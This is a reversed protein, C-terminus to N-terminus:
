KVGYVKITGGSFTGGSPLFTLSNIASTTTYVGMSTIYYYSAGVRGYGEWSVNKALSSTYDYVYGVTQHKYNEAPSGDPIYASIIANTPFNIAQVIGGNYQLGIRTYNNATDGNFRFMAEASSSVYCGSVVWMLDTYTAPISSITVSSGTLSTSSILTMGGSSPTAWKMGTAATSDAMLVQDNTGVALRSVTDSATGAILDGKADVITKPIQADIQAKLTTDISSGLTRIASAGDKVLATDDPTTWGYNTTTAM